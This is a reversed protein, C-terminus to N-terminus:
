RTTNVVITNVVISSIAWITQKRAVSGLSNYLFTFDIQNVLILTLRFLKNM